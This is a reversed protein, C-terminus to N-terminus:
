RTRLLAIVSLILAALEVIHASFWAFCRSLIELIFERRYCLGRYSLDINTINQFRDTQYVDFYGKQNLDSCLKLLRSRDFLKTNNRLTVESFPEHATYMRNLERLVKLQQCTM